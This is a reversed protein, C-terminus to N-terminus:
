RMDVVEVDPYKAKNFVFKSAPAPLNTKFETILYKYSTGDKQDISMSHIQMKAKNIVIVIRFYSAPKKPYLQIYYFGAKEKIFRAKYDKSYNTVVNLPNSMIDQKDVNNITVEEDDESYVWQVKGDSLILREMFNLRYKSGSVLINGTMSENINKKTNTMKYTFKLSVSTYSTLKESLKKLISNAKPDSVDNQAFGTLLLSSM